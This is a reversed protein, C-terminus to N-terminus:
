SQSKIIMECMVQKFDKKKCIEIEYDKEIGDEIYMAIEGTLLTEASLKLGLAEITELKEFTEKTGKFCEWKRRGGKIHEYNILYPSVEFKSGVCKSCPPNIHCSCSYNTDAITCGDCYEEDNEHICFSCEIEYAGRRNIIAEMARAMDDGTLLVSGDKFEQRM